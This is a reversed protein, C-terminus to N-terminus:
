RRELLAPFCRLKAKTTLARLSSRALRQLARVLGESEGPGPRATHELGDTANQHLMESDTDELMREELRSHWRDALDLGYLDQIVEVQDLLCRDNLEQAVCSPHRRGRVLPSSMDAAIVLFQQAFRVDYRDAHEPPLGSLVFSDAMDQRTIQALKRM